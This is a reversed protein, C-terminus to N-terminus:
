REMDNVARTVLVGISSKDFYRMKFRLLHAFLKERVDRIVTQGLWNSYYSFLFQMTVEACLLAILIYVIRM